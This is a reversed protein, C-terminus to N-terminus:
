KGGADQMKKGASAIVMNDTDFYTQVVRRVDGPTVNRIKNLYDNEYDYGVGLFQNKCMYFVQNIRSARALLMSGWTSNQTKTLEEQSPEESKMISIQDVMGNRAIEFNEFGTGMAAVAWGFDPMFEVDMGVSYALGRKERLNLGMHSSIISSAMNIAPADPSTLGPVLIGMNIYVQEKEMEQRAEKIGNIKAPASITSYATNDRPLSGFTSLVWGKIEEPDLNTAVAIIINNPAYFHRHHSRLEDRTFAGVTMPSGMISKEFPHGAFLTRYMLDRCTQYTSGSSMGLIGMVKKKTKGIEEEPFDAKSVIRFLIRTGEEAYEDITEFKIFSFSRSTYRDDYPIYPNDNATISGGIDDLGNQIEEANMGDAGLSLMRNVFDTIGDKGQPENAARNKGLINIAFVRSDPNHSIILDLGNPLVEHVFKGYQPNTEARLASHIGCSLAGVTAIMIASKIRMRANM